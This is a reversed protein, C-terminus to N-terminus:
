KTRKKGCGSCYQALANYYPKGCQNCYKSTFRQPQGILHPTSQEVPKVTQVPRPVVVPQKVIPTAAMCQQIVNLWQKYSVRTNPNNHGSNITISMVKVLDSPIQKSLKNIYKDYAANYNNRYNSDSKNIEPWKHKKFYETEEYGGRITLYFLPHYPFLMFHVGIAVAWTDTNLNVKIRGTNNSLQQKQIEPALWEGPKGFTEPTNGRSDMIAGGEYDILCLQEDQMNVFFNKPNLDAYIFNMKEFYSFGEVLNYAMNLRSELPLNYFRNKYEQKKCKYPNNFLKDFLLWKGSDLLNASYGLVAKGMLKGEYSFQPLAGLATVNEIPKEQKRKLESNLNIIQEQLQEITRLGRISSGSGDDIFVKVVQPVPLTIGNIKRSIYVEGFAGSDFPKDEIEISSVSSYLPNLNSSKYKTIQIAKM